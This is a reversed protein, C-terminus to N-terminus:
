IPWRRWRTVPLSHQSLFESVTASLRGHGLEQCLLGIDTVNENTIAPIVADIANAFAPFVEVGISSTIYHPRTPISPCDGFKGCIQAVKDRLFHVREEGFVVSTRRDSFTQVQRGLKAFTLGDCLLRRAACNEHTLDPDSGEIATVFPRFIDATVSSRVRDPIALLAPDRVFLEGSLMLQVGLVSIASGERVLGMTTPAMLLIFHNRQAAM